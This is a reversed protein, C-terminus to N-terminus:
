REEEAPSGVASAGEAAPVGGAGFAMGAPLFAELAGGAEPLRLLFCAGRRGPLLRAEGQHAEAVARVVALGLGTGEPRTTFYPEFIREALAPPVGPGDDGVRLEVMPGAPGQGAAAEVEIRRAGAQLANAVLNALAGVLAEPCGAVRAGPARDILHLRAGAAEAQAGVTAQLGALLEAVAASRGGEAGHRAFALTEAVLGELRCLGERVREVLRQREAEPLGPRRLRGLHLLATALPTRVQHALRAALEGLASLRRQRDVMEQLRRKETVDSLVLIRGREAELPRSALSVRRGDRLRGEGDEGPPQEFARAALGEWAEGLLPEGLWARAAPNAEQIRGAGDLLLVAAPLAELLRRQRELLRAREALQRERESRAEALERALEEVRAELARYSAVLRESAQSFTEFAGQLERPPLPPASSTAPSSM